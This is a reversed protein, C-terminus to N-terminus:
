AAPSVHVSGHASHSPDPAARKNAEAAGLRAVNMALRLEAAADGFAAERLVVTEATWPLPTLGTLKFEVPLNGANAAGAITFTVGSDNGVITNGNPGAAGGAIAGTLNGGAFFSFTDDGLGGSLSEVGTFGGTGLRNIVRGSNEGNIVFQDDADSGFITDTGDGGAISGTLAGAGFFTFTDDGAGGGLNQVNSFHVTGNIDGKNNARVTWTNTITAGTLTNAGAGGNLIVVAAPM